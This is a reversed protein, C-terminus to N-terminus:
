WTLVASSFGPPRPGRVTWRQGPRREMRDMLKLVHSLVQHKGVADGEDQLEEVLVDHGVDRSFVPVKSFHLLDAGRGGTRLRKVKETELLM